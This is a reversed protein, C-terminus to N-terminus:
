STSAIRPVPGTGAATLVRELATLLTTTDANFTTHDLRIAQRRVLPALPQPITAAPRHCGDDVEEVPSVFKVSGGRSLWSRSPLRRTLTRQKPPRTGTATAAVRKGVKAGQM